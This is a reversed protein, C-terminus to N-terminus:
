VGVSIIGDEKHTNSVMGLIDVYSSGTYLMEYPNDKFTNKLEKKFDTSNM